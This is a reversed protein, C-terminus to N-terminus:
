LQVGHGVVHVQLNWVHALHDLLEVVCTTSQAQVPRLGHACERYSCTPLLGTPIKCPGLVGTSIHM